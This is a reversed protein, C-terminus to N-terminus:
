PAELCPIVVFEVRRNNDRGDATANNDRPLSSGYGAHSLRSTAIGRSLLYERVAGARGESLPQNLKESGTADAHGEVRICLAPHDQISRAVEDLLPLSRPLLTTKSFAFFIKEAIEIREKTVKVDRYLPCGTNEPPGAVSPCPDKGDSIGDGDSDPCGHPAPGVEVPCADQADPTGDGDMDPPPPPPPP